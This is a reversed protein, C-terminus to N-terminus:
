FPLWTVLWSVLIDQYTVTLVIIHKRIHPMDVVKAMAIVIRATWPAELPFTPMMRVM